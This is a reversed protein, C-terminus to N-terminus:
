RARMIRGLNVGHGLHNVNPELKQMQEVTKNYTDMYMDDALVRGTKGLNLWAGRDFSTPGEPQVNRTATIALQRAYENYKNIAQTIENAQRPISLKKYTESKVLRVMEYEILPGLYKNVHAAAKKDGTNMTITFDKINHKRLEKEVTNYESYTTTGFFARLLPDMRYKDDERTPFERIPLNQKLIPVRYMWRKTAADYFRESFGSGEVQSPDRAVAENEDFYSIIDSVFGLGTIARGTVEGFYDGARDAFREISIDIDVDGRVSQILFQVMDEAVGAYDGRRYRVGTYDNIFKRIDITDVKTEGKRYRNIKVLLDALALHAGFPWYRAVNYLDGDDTRIVTAPLDQNEERYKFGAYLLASGIIGKALRDRARMVEVPNSAEDLEKGHKLFM